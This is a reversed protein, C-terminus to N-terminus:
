PKVLEIVVRRNEARGLETQNSAIHRKEGFGETSVQKQEIGLSVFFDKIKNARKRSVILNNYRGGWSSSFAKISISEIEKDYMLYQKIQKLKNKSAKDLESSNNEFTLQSFSIDEFSYKLLNDVCGLFQYYAGQFNTSSLAVSVRDNLNHWDSYYITPFYGKELETLMIWASKEDVDGNFQKRWQMSTIQKPAVGPKWSPPVSEIQAVSYDSPLRMMDLEFALNNIKNARSSFRAQGFNPIYHTLECELATKNELKWMSNNLGSGYRRIDANSHYSMFLIIILPFIRKM